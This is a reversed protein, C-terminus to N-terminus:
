VVSKRDLDQASVIVDDCTAVDELSCIFDTPLSGTANGPGILFQHNNNYAAEAVSGFPYAVGNLYAVQQGTVGDHTLGFQYNVGPLITFTKTVATAVLFRVSLTLSLVGSAYTLRGVPADYFQRGVVQVQTFATSGGVEYRVRFFLSSRTGTWGTFPTNPFLYRTGTFKIAM